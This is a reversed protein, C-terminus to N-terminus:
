KAHMWVKKLLFKVMLFPLKWVAAWRYVRCRSCTQDSCVLFRPDSELIKYDIEYATRADISLAYGENVRGIRLAENKIYEPYLKDFSKSCGGPDLRRFVRKELQVKLFFRDWYRKYLKLDQEALHTIFGPFENMGVLLIKANMEIARRAFDYAGGTEDLGETFEKANRGIAVVSNSPHKSRFSDRDKLMANPFSGTNAPQTGDFYELRKNM